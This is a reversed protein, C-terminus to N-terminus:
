VAGAASQRTTWWDWIEPFGAITPPLRLDDEPHELLYLRRIEREEATLHRNVVDPTRPM